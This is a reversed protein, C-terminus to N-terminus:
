FAVEVTGDEKAVGKVIQGSKTKVAVLQGATANGMARGESTVKFNEGKAVVIVQQGQRIALSARLVEPRIPSGAPISSATTKGIVQEPQTFVGVPYPTLDMVQVEVDQPALVQGGGITRTSVLAKGTVKILVPVYLSWKVPSACSVRVSARGWLRNGSPLSTELQDCKGVKVRADPPTASISVEGAIGATKEQAFAEAAAQISERSQWPTAAFASCSLMIGIGFLYIRTFYGPHKHIAM